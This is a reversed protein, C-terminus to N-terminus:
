SPALRGATFVVPLDLIPVPRGSVTVCSSVLSQWHRTQASVECADDDSVWARAPIKSLSLAAYQVQQTRHEWYRVVGAITHARRLSQGAAWAGLDLLPLIRRQWILTYRCYHPTQPIEFIEPAQLLHIMEREGVAAQVGSDFDLVWARSLALKSLSSSKKDEANRKTLSLM